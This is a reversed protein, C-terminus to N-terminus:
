PTHLELKFLIKILFLIDHRFNNIDVLRSRRIISLIAITSYGLLELKDVSVMRTRGKFSANHTIKFDVRLNVCHRKALSSLNNNLCFNADHSTNKGM